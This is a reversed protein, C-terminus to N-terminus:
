LRGHAIISAHLSRMEERRAAAESNTKDRELFDRLDALALLKRIESGDVLALAFTALLSLVALVGPWIVEAILAAGMLLRVETPGVKGSDIRYEDTIKYSLAAILMRAGYVAMFAVPIFKFRPLYLALGATILCLSIWDTMLDLVFGFWKRPRNRYYALRGDLSDGLWNIALGVIGLLLWPRAGRGLILAASLLASGCLGLATLMNSTVRPPVRPCHWAIARREHRMLWNSRQREGKETKKLTPAHAYM